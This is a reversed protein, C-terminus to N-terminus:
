PAASKACRFGVILTRIEPDAYNRFSNLQASETWGGGRIVKYRGTEPGRPNRAPSVAYYDREYWDSTWEWVNGAMDHLGYPSAGLPYIGVASTQRLYNPGSKDFTEDINARGPEYENGWPYDLGDEGRAAKEWEQETPLRKGAFECYRNADDWNVGVVPLDAAGEPYSTGAWGV